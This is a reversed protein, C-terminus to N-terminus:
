KPGRGAGRLGVVATGSCVEVVGGDEIVVLPDDGPRAAPVETVVVEDLRAAAAAVAPHPVLRLVDDDTVALRYPVSIAGAWAPDGDPDSATGGDTGGTVDRLWFIICPRDDADLFTTPAYHGGFGIRQWRRPTFRGDEVVGVAAVVDTTEGERWRSVVLVDRGDVSVLHPCEWGSATADPHGDDAVLTGDATWTALDDSVFTLVAARSTGGSLVGAGVLMRWREGDRLVTPDRFIRLGPPAAVVADGKTWTHWQPDAPRATRIVGQDLDPHRVSTYFLVVDGDPLVLADGSWCGDDGEGPELAPPLHTWTVLDPSTTHGWAVNPQWTLAAPVAQHFLHYLGDHHVVGHPDNLWGRSPTLHLRPRTM